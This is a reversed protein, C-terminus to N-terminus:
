INKPWNAPNIINLLAKDACDFGLNFSSINENYNAITDKLQQLNNLGIVVNHINNNDICHKLLFIALDGTTEFKDHLKSLIEKIPDFYSPLEQPNRFFLGQLYASRTHIEVNNLALEDILNSFRKDVLNYPLQVLDPFFGSDILKMLEVPTYVSFGIKKILNQNKLEILTQWITSNELLCSPRHALFGYINNLKLNHLSAALQGKIERNNKVFPFKSILKFRDLNQSGLVTESTGYLSSTDITCIGMDRAYKIIKSVEAFSTRGNKNSIGYDMGFQVSGLAIKEIHKVM